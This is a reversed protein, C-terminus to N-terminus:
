AELCIIITIQGNGSMLCPGRRSNGQGRVDAEHWMKVLDKKGEKKREGRLRPSAPLVSCRASTSSSGVASVKRRHDPWNETKSLGHINKTTHSECRTSWTNVSTATMCSNRKWKYGFRSKTGHRTFLFMMVIILEFQIAWAATPIQSFATKSNLPRHCWTLLLTHKTKTNHLHVLVESHRRGMMSQLHPCKSSFRKSMASIVRWETPASSFPATGRVSLWFVSGTM